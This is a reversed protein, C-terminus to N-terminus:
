GPPLTSVDERGADSPVFRFEIEDPRILGLQRRAEGEVLSDDKQTMGLLARKRLVRAESEVIRASLRAHERKNVYYRRVGGHLLFVAGAVAALLLGWKKRRNGVPTM